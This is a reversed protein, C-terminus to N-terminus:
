TPRIAEEVVWTAWRAASGEGLRQVVHEGDEAARWGELVTLRDDALYVTQTREELGTRTARAVVVVASRAARGALAEVDLDLDALQASRSAALDESVLSGPAVQRLLWAAARGPATLILHHIGAGDVQELMVARESVHFLAARIPEGEGRVDVRLRAVGLPAGRLTAVLAARGSAVVEGEGLLHLDGRALLVHAVAEVATRRAGPPLQGLRPADLDDDGPEDDRGLLHIEEDTFLGVDLDAEDIVREIDTLIADLDLDVVQTTLDLAVEEVAIREIPSGGREGV